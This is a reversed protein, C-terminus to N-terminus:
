RRRALYHRPSVGYYQRFARAFSAELEYGVRAAVERLTISDIELLQAARKMRADTVYTAPSAGMYKRFEESFTTRSLGVGLAMRNVTWSRDLHMHVKQVAATIRRANPARVEVEQGHWRQDYIDKMMHVLLLSVLMTAFATGGPGQCDARIQKVDVALARASGGARQAERMVWCEPAARNVFASPSVYTLDLASSLTVGRIPEAGVRTIPPSEPIRSWPRISVDTAPSRPKDCLSHRAGYFLLASDGASLTVPDGADPTDLVATGDLVFHLIALRGRSFHARGGSGIEFLLSYADAVRLDRLLLETLV